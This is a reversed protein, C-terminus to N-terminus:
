TEGNGRRGDGINHYIMVHAGSFICWFDSAKEVPVAELLGDSITRFAPGYTFLALPLSYTGIHWYFVAFVFSCCTQASSSCTLGQDQQLKSVVGNYTRLGGDAVCENQVGLM